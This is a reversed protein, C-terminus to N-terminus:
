TGPQAKAKQSYRLFGEGTAVYITGDTAQAMYSINKVPGQDDLPAWNAGADLSRFIGSTSSGVYLTNSNNRDVVMNRARGATYVPGAPGWNITQAELQNSFAVVAVVSLIKGARTLMYNNM